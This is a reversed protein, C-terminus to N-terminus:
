KNIKMGSAMILSAAICADLMAARTKNQFEDQRETQYPNDVVVSQVAHIILLMWAVQTYGFILMIGGILYFYSFAYAVQTKYKILHEPDPLRYNKVYKKIHPASWTHFKTYSSQLEDAYQRNQFSAQYANTLFWVALCLLGVQLTLKGM